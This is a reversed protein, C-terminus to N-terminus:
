DNSKLNLPVFSPTYVRSLEMILYEKGEMGEYENKRLFESGTGINRVANGTVILFQVRNFNKM